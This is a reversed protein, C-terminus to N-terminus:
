LNQHQMSQIEKRMEDMYGGTLIGAPFAILAVGVLSSLMAAVRGLDSVPYIEGYGIAALSVCAWYIADFFTNFSDPEVSFVVLACALIYGLALVVVSFLLTRERKLVNGLILFSRSERIFRIARLCRVM